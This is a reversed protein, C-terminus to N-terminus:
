QTNLRSIIKSAINLSAAQETVAGINFAVMPMGYVVCSEKDQGITHAGARKMKLLGDAGDKGMGTLIVGIAKSGTKQAVSSFLVDVSPCHGSVKEGEVCKIYYGRADKELTMQKDGPAVFAHGAEVRDGNKAEAVQMKCLKNLREAYMRTFNPPMHQTILICPMDAPLQKLIDLTAETGGTSAGIAIIEVGGGTKKLKLEKHDAEPLAAAKKIKAM